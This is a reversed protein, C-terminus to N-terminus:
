TWEEAERQERITQVREPYTREFVTLAHKFADERVILTLLGAIGAGALLGSLVFLTRVQSGTM